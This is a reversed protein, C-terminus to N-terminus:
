HRPWKWKTQDTKHKIKRKLSGLKLLTGEIKLSRTQTRLRHLWMTNSFLLSRVHEDYVGKKPPKVSNRFSGTLKTLDTQVDRRGHPVFRSESSPNERFKSNTYKEFVLWSFELQFLIHRSYRTSQIFVLTSKQVYRQWTKTSHSSYWVFTTSFISVCM